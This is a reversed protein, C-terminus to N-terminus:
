FWTKISCPNRSVPTPPSIIAIVSHLHSSLLRSVVQCWKEDIWDRCSWTCSMSLRTRKQIVWVVSGSTVFTVITKYCLGDCWTLRLSSLLDPCSFLGLLSLSLSAVDVALFNLWSFHLHLSISLSHFKLGLAFFLSPSVDQSCCFSERPQVQTKLRTERRCFLTEEFLNFSVFHTSSLLLHSWSIIAWKREWFIKACSEGWKTFSFLSICYLVNMESLSSLSSSEFFSAESM